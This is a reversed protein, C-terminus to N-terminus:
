APMLWNSHVFGTTDDTRNVIEAVMWWPGPGRSILRVRTGKPLTKIKGHQVGPGARMNLGSNTHVRFLEEDPGDEEEGFVRERLREMDLAPGPDLKRAPSVDDHGVLDASRIGYASCIARCAKITAEIQAEPFTQWGLTVGPRNRHESVIVRDGPVPTDTWSRWGGTADRELWGWNVIEIGVSFRNLGRRNRWESRGAHFAVTDFPVMQIISGDVDIVLHASVRSGPTADKFIRVTGAASKTATYHILLFEPAGGTLQGSTNPSPDFTVAPDDAGQVLRHNSIDM